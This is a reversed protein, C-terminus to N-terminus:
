EKGHNIDRLIFKSKRGKKKKKGAPNKKSLQKTPQQKRKKKVHINFFSLIKFVLIVTELQERRTFIM